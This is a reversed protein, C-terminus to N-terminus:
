AVLGRVPVVLDLPEQGVGDFLVFLVLVVLLVVVLVVFVVLEVLVIALLGLGPRGSGVRAEGVVGRHRDRGLVLHQVALLLRRIRSGAAAVPELMGGCRALRDGGGAEDLRGALGADEDEGVAAQEHVLERVVEGLLAVPAPHVLGNQDAVRRRP